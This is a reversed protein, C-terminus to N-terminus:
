QHYRCRRDRSNNAATDNNGAKLAGRAQVREQTLAFHNGTAPENRSALLTAVGGSYEQPTLGALEM